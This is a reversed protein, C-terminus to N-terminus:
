RSSNYFNYTKDKLRLFCVKLELNIGLYYSVPRAPQGRIKPKSCVMRQLPLSFPSCLGTPRARGELFWLVISRIHKHPFIISWRRLCKTLSDQGTSRRETIGPGQEREREGKGQQRRARYTTLSLAFRFLQLQLLLLLLAVRFFIFLFCIRMKMRQLKFSAFFFWFRSLVSFFILQYSETGRHRPAETAAAILQKERWSADTPDPPLNGNHKQCFIQYTFEQIEALLLQHKTLHIGTCHEGRALSRGSITLNLYAVIGRITTGTATSSSSHSRATTLRHSQFLFRM